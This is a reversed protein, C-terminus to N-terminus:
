SQQMEERIVKNFYEPNDLYMHHGGEPVRIVKVPVKMHEKAREAAKYDMWDVEGYVFVTPMKLGALRHFLPKRAVAGPALIAALAYEGSGSSSTINYLYDYLDHQEDEDLHAFRRSTYSHVLNAGFPGIMRVISMPTVNRDWLYTAWAPIRRKPPEPQQKAINEMAAAEAQLSAGLENAERELEEQPNETEIKKPAYSNEPIGAPSVLILKEVRQPYKLAYCAAFYGGLSHGFLTMKELGVKDRWDELSEVFHDEVRTRVNVESVIEDWTQNSQKSITWKPRSSNGMGLWDLSFLRWGTEQSLNQYNRYFFGLGAGYGHCIVLNRIGHNEKTEHQIDELLDQRPEAEFRFPISQHHQQSIYLTNVQRATKNSLLTQRDISIRGIRAYIPTQPGALPLAGYIRKIIRAEAISATKESRHWWNKIFNLKTTPPIVAPLSSVISLNNRDVFDSQSM